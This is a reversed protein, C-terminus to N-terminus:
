TSSAETDAAGLWAWARLLDAPPFYEIPFRRLGKSAFMLALDEWKRDAVIAMKLIDKDHEASFSVDGWAGGRQWGEFRETLILLRSKGQKTLIEGVTRQLAALEPQELLGSIRITLTNGSNDLIEASM